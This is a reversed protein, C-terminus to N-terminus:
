ASESPEVEELLHKLKAYLREKEKELATAAAEPELFALTERM